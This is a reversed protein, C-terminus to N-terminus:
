ETTEAPDDSCIDNAQIDPPAADPPVRLNTENDCVTNGSLAIPDRNRLDLGMTNSAIENDTITAASGTSLWIGTGNDHIDNRLISAAGENIHVATGNEYFENAWINATGGAEVLIAATSDSAGHIRNGDIVAQTANASGAGVYIASFGDLGGSIDNEEIRPSSGHEVNFAFGNPCASITNNRFVAATGEGWVSICTDLLRSAEIVPSAGRDVALWGEHTIDRVLAASGLDVGLGVRAATFASNVPDGEIDTILRELTPRDGDVFIATTTPQGLITLDTLTAADATVWVGYLGATRGTCGMRCLPARDEPLAPADEPVRIVIEASDGEGDLTVNKDIVISEEYIGPRVVISDGDEAQALAETITTTTGSGSQDVVIIADAALLRSGAVGAAVLAIALLVTAALVAAIRITPSGVAPRTDIRMPPEKILALWRPRQRTGSARRRFDDYFSDPLPASGREAEMRDAFQREFTRDDIM